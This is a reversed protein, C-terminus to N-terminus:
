TESSYALLKRIKEDREEASILQIEFQQNIRRIEEFNDAKRRAAYLRQEYEQRTLIDMNLAKDLKTKEDQYELEAQEKDRLFNIERVEKEIIAIQKELEKKRAAKPQMVRLIDQIELGCFDNTIDVKEMFRRGIHMYAADLDNEISQLERNINEIEIEKQNKTLNDSLATNKRRQISNVAVNKSDITDYKFLDLFGM